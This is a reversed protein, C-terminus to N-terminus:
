LAHTDLTRVWDHYSDSAAMKQEKYKRKAKIIGKSRKNTRRTVRGKDTKTDTAVQSGAKNSYNVLTSIDLENLINLWEENMKKSSVRGMSFKSMAQLGKPSKNIADVMKTKNDDNLAGHVKVLASATFHDVKMGHVDDHQQNSHVGQVKQWPTQKKAEDFSIVHRNGDNDRQVKVNNIKFKKELHKTAAGTDMEKGHVRKFEQNVATRTPRQAENVEVSENRPVCNPVRKGGKIKYGKQVHTDWCENLQSSENTNKRPERMTYKEKRNFDTRSREFKQHEAPIHIMDSPTTSRTQGEWKPDRLLHGKGYEPQSYMARQATRFANRSKKYRNARHQQRLQFARELNPRHAGGKAHARRGVRKPSLSGENTQKFTKLVDGEKADPDLVITAKTHDGANSAWKHANAKTMRAQVVKGTKPDVGAYVDQRRQENM